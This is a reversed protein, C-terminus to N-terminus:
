KKKNKDYFYFILCSLLYSIIIASIKESIPVDLFLFLDFLSEFFAEPGGILNVVTKPLCETEPLFCYLLGYTIGCLIVAILLKRWDPKLFEKWNM